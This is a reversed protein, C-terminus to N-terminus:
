KPPAHPRGTTQTFREGKENRLVVSPEIRWPELGGNTLIVDTWGDGDMDVASAHLTGFARHLGIRKTVEEFTGGTNVFLRPTGQDLRVEPRILCELAAEYSAYSSVFLDLLPDNNFDFFVASLSNGGLGQLGAQETVDTFEGKGNNQFLLAPRKWRLVFLDPAHDGNYDAAAVSVANGAFRINSRQFRGRDNRFIRLPPFEKSANGAEILDPDSDGDVDTFAASATARVGSLGAKSTVDMFRGGDNRLLLNQGSGIWGSRIIYQDQQKDGDYDVRVTDRAAPKSEYDPRQQPSRIWRLFVLAQLGAKEMLSLSGAAQIDGESFVGRGSIKKERQNIELVKEFLAAAEKYEGQQFKVFGSFFIGQPSKFGAATQFRRLAEEPKGELLAM